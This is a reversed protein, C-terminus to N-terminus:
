PTGVGASFLSIKEEGSRGFQDKAWVVVPFEKGAPRSLFTDGVM